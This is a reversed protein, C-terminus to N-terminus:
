ISKIKDEIEDCLGDFYEYIEGDSVEHDTEINGVYELYVKNLGTVYFAVNGKHVRIAGSDGEQDFFLTESNTYFDKDLWKSLETENEFSFYVDKDFVHSVRGSGDPYFVLEIDLNMNEFKSNYKDLVNM